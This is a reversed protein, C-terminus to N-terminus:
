KKSPLLQNLSPQPSQLQKGSDIMRIKAKGMVGNIQLWYPFYALYRQHDHPLYVEIVKNSLDSGDRPWKTRLADFAVDQVVQGEVIMRPQWFPRWEPGSTPKPGVRKRNSEPVKSFKLNLLKTLFNDADSIEFWNKKTFSYYRIMHGTRVDIDFMVWSTHGPAGQKVWEKWSFDAPRKCEPITIEELTLVQNQKAYVHMLTQTKNSSIVLYDGPQAQRLNDRLLLENAQLPCCIGILGIMFIFLFSALRDM